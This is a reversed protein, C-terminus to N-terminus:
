LRNRPSGKSRWRSWEWRAKSSRQGHRSLRAGGAPAALMSAAIEPAYALHSIRVDKVDIGAVALRDQVEDRLHAAVEATNARLSKVGEQHADYPYAAALNRLRRRARCRSTTRTITSKFFRKRSYRSRGVGRHGRVRDSQRRSREGKVTRNRLQTDAALRIEKRLLPEGLATGANAGHRCLTRFTAASRGSETARRVPRKLCFLDLRWCSRMCHRPGATARKLRPTTILAALLGIAILALLALYIFGSATRREKEKM